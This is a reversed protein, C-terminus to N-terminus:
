VSYDLAFSLTESAHNHLYCSGAMVDYRLADDPAYRQGNITIATIVNKGTAGSHAVLARPLELCLTPNNSTFTLRGGKMDLTNVVNLIAPHTLSDDQAGPIEAAALTVLVSAISALDEDPLVHRNAVGNISYSILMVGALMSTTAFIDSRAM